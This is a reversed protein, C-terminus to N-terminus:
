TTPEAPRNRQLRQMVADLHSEGPRRRARSEVPGPVVHWVRQQPNTQGTLRVKRPPDNEGKVIICDVM